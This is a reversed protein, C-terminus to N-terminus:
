GKKAKHSSSTSIPKCRDWMFQFWQKYSEALRESIIMFATFDKSPQDLNGLSIVVRDNYVDVVGPSSYEKPLFRFESNGLRPEPKYQDKTTADLLIQLRINRKKTARLFSEAMLDKHPHPDLYFGKGGISYIFGRAGLADRQINKLGEIGSYVFVGETTKKESFLKQMAPLIEELKTRKEEVMEFFKNPEVPAYRSEKDGIVPTIVGKDVLRNVADYVNRRHINTRTAIETISSEGLELLAEYIRAENPSLGLEKLVDAYAM